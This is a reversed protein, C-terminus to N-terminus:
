HEVLGKSFKDPPFSSLTKRLREKEEETLHHIDKGVFLTPTIFIALETKEYNVEKRRFASGVIPINMLVPVGKTIEQKRHKMIGAIIVTDGPRTKVVTDISRRDIVPQSAKSGESSFEEVRVLESVDSNISLLIDGEPSIKPIIDLVVGVPVIQVTVTPAVVQGGYAQAIQTQLTFFPQERVVRILAKEGQMAAIKPSSIVEIKGQTRLADIILDVKKNSVAFTFIGKSEGTLGLSEPSGSDYSIAPYILTDTSPLTGFYGAAKLVATWDVGLQHAADLKIEIIKIEIWVQRQCSGEVSELFAAIQNIKEEEARVLVVGTQPSIILKRGEKDSYSFPQAGEKSAPARGGAGLITTLGLIIDNWLNSLSKTEIKSRSVNQGAMGGMMGGMAGMAGTYGGAGTTGMGGMMGAMTSMSSYSVQREGKRTAPLLNLYFIRTKFKPKFVRILKGEWRYDYGLPELIYRLAQDLTVEKLDMDPVTGQVEPEILISYETDKIMALLVTRLDGGQLKLSLVQKPRPEKETETFIVDMSPVAPKIKKKKEPKATKKEVKKAQSPALTKEILTPEKKTACFSFLLALVILLAIRKM